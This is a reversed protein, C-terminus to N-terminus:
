AATQLPNQLQWHKGQHHLHEYPLPFGGCTIWLGHLMGCGPRNEGPDQEAKLGLLM